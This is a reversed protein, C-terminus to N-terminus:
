GHFQFVLDLNRLRTAVPDVDASFEIFEREELNRREVAAIFSPSLPRKPRKNQIYLCERLREEVRDMSSDKSMLEEDGDDAAMMPEDDAVAASSVSNDANNNNPHLSLFSSLSLQASSLSSFILRHHDPDTTTPLQKAMLTAQELTQILETLQRQQSQQFDTVMNNNNEM